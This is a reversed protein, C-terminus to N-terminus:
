MDQGDCWLLSTVCLNCRGENHLKRWNGTEYHLLKFTSTPAVGIVNIAMVVTEVVYQVFWIDTEGNIIYYTIIPLTGDMFTLPMFAILMIEYHM